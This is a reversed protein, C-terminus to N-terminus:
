TSSAPRRCDRTEGKKGEDNQSRTKSGESKCVMGRRKERTNQCVREDNRLSTSCVSRVKERITARLGEREFRRERVKEYNRFLDFPYFASATGGGFVAYAGSAIPSLLVVGACPRRAALDVAPGSGISRGFRSAVGRPMDPNHRRRTTDVMVHRPGDPERERGKWLSLFQRRARALSALAAACSSATRACAAATWRAATRVASSTTTRQTPRPAANRKWESCLVATARARAGSLRATAHNMACGSFLLLFYCAPRRVARLCGSESPAAGETVYSLSYGVYEYALASACAPQNM